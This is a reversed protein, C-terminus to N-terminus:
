TCHSGASSNQSCSQFTIRTGSPFSKWCTTAAWRRASAKSVPWGVAMTYEVTFPQRYPM